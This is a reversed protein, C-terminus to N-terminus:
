SRSRRSCSGRAPRHGHGPPADPRHGRRRVGAAPLPLPRRWACWLVGLMALMTAVTLVDTPVPSRIASSASRTASRPRGSAPARAGRRASCGSGRGRSTPTAGSSCRSCSSASRVSCRRPSRRGTAGNPPHRHVVRRRVRRRPRCRQAADRDRARRRSRRAGLARRAAPAPVGRVLAILAAEAYAFSLVFSGPFVAFLVMARAAVEADDTLRLALLGVLLMAVLALVFNVFLAAITDGGPLSRTSSVCSDDPVGPLVGGTGRAARVHHEPPISHPYGHRVIELYWRGDWSM